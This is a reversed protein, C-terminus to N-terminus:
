RRRRSSPARSCHKPLEGKRRGLFAFEEAGTISARTFLYPLDFRWINHGILIDPDIDIVFRRWAELMEKETEFSFVSAGEIPACSDVTFIARVSPTEDGTRQSSIDFLFDKPVSLLMGQYMMMNGIQIVPYDEAEPFGEAPIRTEIDFSLLRLPAYEVLDDRSPVGRISLMSFVLTVNCLARLSAPSISKSLPSKLNAVHRRHHM